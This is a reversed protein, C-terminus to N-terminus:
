PKALRLYEGVSRKAMILLYIKKRVAAGPFWVVKIHSVGRVIQEDQGPWRRVGDQEELRVLRGMGLRDLVEQWGIERSPLKRFSGEVGVRPLVKEEFDLSLHLRDVDDFVPLVDGVMKSAWEGAVVKLCGPIEELRPGFLELRVARSGRARLSFFYLPYASEPINALCHELSARQRQSGAEGCMQPQLVNLLWSSDLPRPLQACLLPEPVGESGPPLDFELWTAPVQGSPLGENVWWGLFRELDPSPLQRLVHEAQRPNVLKISLDVRQGGQGLHCELITLCDSPLHHAVEHLRRRAEPTALAPSLHSEIPELWSRPQDVAVARVM